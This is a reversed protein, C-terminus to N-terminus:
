GRKRLFGRTPDLRFRLGSEQRIAMLFPFGARSEGDINTTSM